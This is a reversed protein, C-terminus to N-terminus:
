LCKEWFACKDMPPLSPLARFGAGGIQSRQSLLAWSPETRVPHAGPAAPGSSLCPFVYFM